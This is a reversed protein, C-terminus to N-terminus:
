KLLHFYRLRYGPMQEPHFIAVLERLLYDPHMPAEEYFLSIDTNCGYVRHQKFADFHAYLAYEAELAQYTMETNMNYNFLWFDAHIAKDLVTEFNLPAGGSGPLYSFVYDAGADHYLQAKYSQGAPVYWTSGYRKETFLTPRSAVNAVRNKIELYRAETERFLSDALATKGTFLGLFRIWEARGLPTTEMYDACEIVPIGTKEVAGYGANQFPSALIVEVGSAIMKETNPSVSEGMDAILGEALYPRVAPHNIFRPECVGAIDDIGGLEYLAAIHVATYVVIKQIPTRILTGAPLGAPIDTNRDILVYRQLNRQLNWPDVVDVVTYDPYCLVKFGEAYRLPYIEGPIGESTGDQRM